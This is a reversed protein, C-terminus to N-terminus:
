KLVVVFKLYSGTLLLEVSNQLQYVIREHTGGPFYWFFFRIEKTTLSFKKLM